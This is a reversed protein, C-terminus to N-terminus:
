HSLRKRPTLLSARWDGDNGHKFTVVDYARRKPGEESQGNTKETDADKV